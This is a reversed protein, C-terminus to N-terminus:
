LKLKKLLNQMTTSGTEKEKAHLGVKIIEKKESIATSCYNHINVSMMRVNDALILNVSDHSASKYITFFNLYTASM